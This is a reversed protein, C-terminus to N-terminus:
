SVCVGLLGLLNVVIEGTTTDGGVGFNTLDGCSFGGGSGLKMMCSSSCVEIGVSWRASLVWAFISM